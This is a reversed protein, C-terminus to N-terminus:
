EKESGTIDTLQKIKEIVKEPSVWDYGYGGDESTDTEENIYKELLVFNNMSEKLKKRLETNEKRLVSIISATADKDKMIELTEKYENLKKHLGSTYAELHPKCNECVIGRKPSTEYLVVGWEQQNHCFRCHIMNSKEKILKFDVM